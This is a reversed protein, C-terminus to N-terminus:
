AATPQSTERYDAEIEAPTADDLEAHIREENFWSVWKCTAVELDDLGKWHGGVDRLVAPNRFLETKFISFMSEAMANDFSDGITGISPAAGIEDIRDTYTVSTYQSGADSHCRLDTLDSHRRTWAAMNIADTVLAATMSRAAKWGVIRRSFVDTVFAVYVIGSWTSCYTFDCVWLEDPRAATFDRKVLDPSRLHAADSKTTFRKKSRSAGCIGQRKMLRAVQDRGVHMGCRKAAATLKRRGYVSYNVAWLDELAPGLEADRMARASPPRTKADYYTSPAVKLQEM